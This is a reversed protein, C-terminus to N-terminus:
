AAALVRDLAGAQSKLCTDLVKLAHTKDTAAQGGMLSDFRSEAKGIPDTIGRGWCSEHDVKQYVAQLLGYATGHAAESYAGAQEGNFLALVREQSKTSRTVGAKGKDVTPYLAELYIRAFAEDIRAEALRELEEQQRTLYDAGLKLVRRAEEVKNPLDGTHRLEVRNKAGSLAFNVTNKCVVRVSTYCGTFKTWGDHGNLALFYSDLVEDKIKMTEPIRALIAVLRGGRMSFASEIQAGSEGIFAEVFDMHATNQLPRYERTVRGLYRATDTEDLDLRVTHAWQEGHGKIVNGFRDVVDELGVEWRLNALDLAEAPTLIHDAVNGLKHWAADLSYAAGDVAMTETAETNIEHAM